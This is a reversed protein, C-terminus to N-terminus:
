KKKGIDFLISAVEDYTDVYNFNVGERVYDPLEAVDERNANPVILNSIGVRKAAIVKERIGGIALVNGTLSLEGTMAFNVKPARNLVLSLLASAMTIGASPGDKPTAGEPVHLHINAKEFYNAPVDSCLRALNSAVYSLAISASEKMVNGLNGTLSFGKAYHDVLRAEVPLTAGGVSTWALGTVIGVGSLTKERAFPPVGLYGRVDSAKVVIKESEKEVLKIVGKRIIKAISKELNRVGSERAYEDIIKRVATDQFRIERNRIGSKELAKPILHKKAIRFKEEALYGSLTIADMRDLLAPPITDLSNATCIFLCKSLDIKVDLYHDRFGCNQEPDLTELLASGPDGQTSIGLKDIEDLLIVPNMAKSEKLAQVLKGPLAGIYTRRHGKIEAEDRMGGLSFRFFPRNLARAVSRGISTKGVGPPGVLLMVAGNFEQKYSGVALFELIREKVDNLGEHDEELIKRAHRINFNDKVYVGWPVDTLWNLYDRSVAFEPSQSDLLKMRNLEEHFRDLIEKPPNLNDMKDTLRNIESTKDDVLVGLEKQIEKLQEKLFFNRQKANIKESVTNKITKELKTSALEKQVLSLSLKLRPILDVTELVELLEASSATTISAACDALLSPDNPNFRLLYQKLEQYYLPNIPIMEQMTSIIAMAYAKVEIEEKADRPPLEDEPYTADGEIVKSNKVHINDLRVRTLGQIVIQLDEGIRAQMIRVLCGMKGTLSDAKFEQELESEPRVVIALVKSESNVVQRITAAWKSALQVPILESPLVPRDYVPIVAVKAPRVKDSVVVSGSNQESNETEDEHETENEKLSDIDDDKKRSM